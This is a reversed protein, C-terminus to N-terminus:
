RDSQNVGPIWRHESLSDKYIRQEFCVSPCLCVNIKRDKERRKPDLVFVRRHIGVNQVFRRLFEWEIPCIPFDETRHQVHDQHSLFRPSHIMPRGVTFLRQREQELLNLLFQAANSNLEIDDEIEALFQNRPALFVAFENSGVNFVDCVFELFQLTTNTNYLNAPRQQEKPKELSIWRLYAQYEYPELLLSTKKARKHTLSEIYDCFRISSTTWKEKTKKERDKGCWRMRAPFVPSACGRVDFM